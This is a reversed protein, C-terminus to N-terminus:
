FSFHVLFNAVPVCVTESAVATMSFDNTNNLLLADSMKNPEHPNEQKLNYYSYNM